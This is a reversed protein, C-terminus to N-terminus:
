PTHYGVRAPNPLGTVPPAHLPALFPQKEGTGVVSKLTAGFSWLVCKRFTRDSLSRLPQKVLIMVFLFILSSPLTGTDVFDNCLSGCSGLEFLENACTLKHTKM